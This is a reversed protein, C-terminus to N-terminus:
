LINNNNIIFIIFHHRHTPCESSRMTAGITSSLQADYTCMSQGECQNRCEHVGGVLLEICYDLYVFHSAKRM